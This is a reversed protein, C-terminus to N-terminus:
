KYIAEADVKMTPFERIQLPKPFESIDGGKKDNINWQGVLRGNPFKTADMTYPVAGLQKVFTAAGAKKGQAVLLRIWDVNCPRANTGSEGGIILWNIKAHGIEQAGPTLIKRSLCDFATDPSLDLRTLDIDGLLPELSLGHCVAPIKLLAPIRKDATVQNEVSTLLIINKPIFKGSLWGQAFDSIEKRRNFKFVIESIRKVFLEPRKTCLIWIVQDCLRITDLMEALWEIPVEDDLWDGLSLSFIRRRHFSPEISNCHPCFPNEGHKSEPNSAASAEGCADCIWPKRNMALAQKVAGISKLRPANKGWHIVKEQLMRADRAEAYCNTCGPSVKTCGSWFNITSDCWAINTKESM